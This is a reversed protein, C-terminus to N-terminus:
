QTVPPTMADTYVSTKCPSTIITAPKRMRSVAVCTNSPPRRPALSITSASSPSDIIGKPAAPTIVERPQNKTNPMPKAPWGWMTVLIIIFLFRASLRLM